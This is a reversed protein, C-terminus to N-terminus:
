NFEIVDAVEYLGVEDFLEAFKLLSNKRNATEELTDEFAELNETPNYKSQDKYQDRMKQKAVDYKDSKLEEPREKGTIMETPFKELGAQDQTKRWSNYAKALYLCKIYIELKAENGVGYRGSLKGSSNVIDHSNYHQTLTRFFSMVALDLKELDGDDKADLIEQLGSLLEILYDTEKSYNYLIPNTQAVLAPTGELTALEDWIDIDRIVKREKAADKGKVTIPDFERSFLQDWTKEAPPKTSTSKSRKEIEEYPRLINNVFGTEQVLPNAYDFELPNDVVLDMDNGYILLLKKLWIKPNGQAIDKASNVDDQFQAFYKSQQEAIYQDSALRTNLGKRKKTIDQLRKKIISALNRHQPEMSAEFTNAANGLIVGPTQTIFNQELMKYQPLFDQLNKNFQSMAADVRDGYYGVGEEWMERIMQSVNAGFKDGFEEIDGFFYEGEEPQFGIDMGLDPDYVELTEKDHYPVVDTIVGKDIKIGAPPWGQKNWKEKIAAPDVARNLQGRDRYNAGELLVDEGFPEPNYKPNSKFKGWTSRKDLKAPHAGIPTHTTTFQKENSSLADDPNMNREQLRRLKRSTDVLDSNDDFQAIKIGFYSKDYEGNLSKELVEADKICGAQKLKQIVNALKTKDM